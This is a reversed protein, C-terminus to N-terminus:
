VSQIGGAKRVESHFLDHLPRFVGTSNVRSGISLRPKVWNQQLILNRRMSHVYRIFKSKTPFHLLFNIRSPMEQEESTARLYLEYQEGIQGHTHRHVSCFRIIERAPRTLLSLPPNLAPVYTLVPFTSDQFADFLIFTKDGINAPNSWEEPVSPIEETVQEEDAHLM